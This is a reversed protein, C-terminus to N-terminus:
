LWSGATLPSSLPDRQWAADERPESPGSPHRIKPFPLESGRPPTQDGSDGCSSSCSGPARRAPSESSSCRPRGARSGSLYPLVSPAQQWREAGGVGGAGPASPAPVPSPATAVGHEGGWALVAGVDARGEQEVHGVDEDGDPSPHLEELLGPGQRTERRLLHASFPCPGPPLSKPTASGLGHHKKRM